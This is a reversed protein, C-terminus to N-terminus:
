WECVLSNILSQNVLSVSSSDIRQATARPTLSARSPLSWFSKALSSRKPLLSTLAIPAQDRCNAWTATSVVLSPLPMGSSPLPPAAPGCADNTQAPRSQISRMWASAWASDRASSCITPSVNADLALPASLSSPTQSDFQLKRGAGCDALAPLPEETLGVKGDGQGSTVAVTAVFCNLTLSTRCSPGEGGHYLWRM